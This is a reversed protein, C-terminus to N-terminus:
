GGWSMKDPSEYIQNAKLTAYPAVPTAVKGDEFAYRIAGDARITFAKTGGPLCIAFQTDVNTIEVNLVVPVLAESQSM